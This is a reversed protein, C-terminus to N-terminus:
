RKKFAPPKSDDKNEEVVEDDDDDDGLGRKRYKGSETMDVDDLLGFEKKAEALFEEMEEIKSQIFAADDGDAKAWEIKLEDIKAAIEKLYALDDPDINDGPAPLVSQQSDDDDDDGNDDEEEEDDDDDDDSGGLLSVSEASHSSDSSSSVNM